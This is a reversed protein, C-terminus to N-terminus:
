DMKAVQIIMSKKMPTKAGFETLKKCFDIQAVRRSAQQLPELTVRIEKENIKITENFRDQASKNTKM